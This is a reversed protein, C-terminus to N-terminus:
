QKILIKRKSQFNVEVQELIPQCWQIWIDNCDAIVNPDFAILPQGRITAQVRGGARLLKKRHKEEL